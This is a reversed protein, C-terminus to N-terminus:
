VMPISYNKARHFNEYENQKKIQSWTNESIIWFLRGGMGNCKSRIKLRLILLRFLKLVVLRSMFIPKSRATMPCRIRLGNTDSLKTTPEVLILVSVEM